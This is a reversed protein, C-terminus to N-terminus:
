SKLVNAVETGYIIKELVLNDAEKWLVDIKDQPVVDGRCLASWSRNWKHEDDAMLFLILKKGLPKYKKPVSPIKEHATGNSHYARMKSEVFIQKHDHLIGDPRAKKLNGFIDLYEQTTKEYTYNKDIKEFYLRVFGEGLPGSLCKNRSNNGHHIGISYLEERRNKDHELNLSPNELYDCILSLERKTLELLSKM